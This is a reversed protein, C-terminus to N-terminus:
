VNKQWKEFFDIEDGNCEKKIKEIFDIKGEDCKKTLFKIKSPDYNLLVRMFYNKISYPEIIKNEKDRGYLSVIGGHAVLIKDLEINLNRNEIVTQPICLNPIERFDKGIDRVSNVVNLGNTNAEYVTKEITPEWLPRDEPFNTIWCCPATKNNKFNNILNKGFRIDPIEILPRRCIIKPAVLYFPKNLEKLVKLYKSYESFPPNTVIVDVEKYKEEDFIEQWYIVKKARTKFFRVFESEESDAPCGVIKDSWDYSDLEKEIDEFRTYFEDDKKNKANQLHTNSKM